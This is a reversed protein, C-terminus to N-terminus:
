LSPECPSIRSLKARKRRPTAFEWVSAVRTQKNRRYRRQKEIPDPKPKPKDPKDGIDYLARPYAMTSGEDDMTWGCIYVRKAKTALKRNMRTLVASMASRPLGLERALGARTTPGQEALVRLIGLVVPGPPKGPM